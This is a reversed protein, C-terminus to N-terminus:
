GYNGEPLGVYSQVVGMKLPFFGSYITWKGYNHIIERILWSDLSTATFDNVNLWFYGYNINTYCYYVM